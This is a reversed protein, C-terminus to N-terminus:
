NTGPEGAASVSTIASKSIDVRLNDAVKVSVTQEKVAHIIGHLGGSTVVRDGKKMNALLKQHEKQQQKQPRWILLYFLAVMFVLFPLFGKLQEMPNSAAGAGGGGQAFVEGTMLCFIAAMLFLFPLFGKLREVPDSVRGAGRGGQAVTEGIVVAM